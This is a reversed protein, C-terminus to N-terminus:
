RAIWEDCVVHTGRMDRYTHAHLCVPTESENTFWEQVLGAGIYWVLFGFACGAVVRWRIKTNLV